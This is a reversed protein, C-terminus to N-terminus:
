IHVLSSQKINSTSPFPQNHIVKAKENAHTRLSCLKILFRKWSDITKRSWIWFGSTIGVVLFMFYKLMFVSYDPRVDPASCHCKHEREWVDRSVHEYVYCGIVSTAPVTYLVSFVGIRIMLKELKDVSETAQQRIVGRIRFLEVYGGLLFSTGLLLYVCLPILVFGRLLLVNQNGVYCIGAVPDGDIGDIALIIITKVAPIAWAGLHFYLSYDAIAENGWKMGAALLWTLALMVWWLSSAMGFFYILLFVITCPASRESNQYRVISGDCAVAEHGMGIRILYGISVMLYCGSLFIIPREPYRFRKMDIMFTTVTITTSVCCLVAWISLWMTAFLHQNEANFLGHCPVACDLIAGGEVKNYYDREMQFTVMPYRCQCGCVSDITLSPNHKLVSDSKKSQARDNVYTHGRKPHIESEIIGKDNQSPNQENINFTPDQFEAGELEDMCLHGPDGYEPFSECNMREPWAFGYQRLLPACGLRARECVSRCAPISGQYDPMCIPTYLSCLFFRLDDSCQIEVLPWFQHVEFGAEEQTTHYFPNPMSTANYGIDKCMPISIEECQNPLRTITSADVCVLIVLNLLKYIIM